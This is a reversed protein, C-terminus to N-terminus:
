YLVFGIVVLNKDRLKGVRSFSFVRFRKYINGLVFEFSWDDTLGLGLIVRM